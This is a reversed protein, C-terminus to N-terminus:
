SFHRNLLLKGLEQSEADNWKSPILFGNLIKKLVSHFRKILILLTKCKNLTTIGKHPPFISVVTNPRHKSRPKAASPRKTLNETVTLSLGPPIASNALYIM